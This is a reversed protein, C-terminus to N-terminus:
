RKIAVFVPLFLYGMGTSPHISFFFQGLNFKELIAFLVAFYPWEYNAFNFPTALIEHLLTTQTNFFFM